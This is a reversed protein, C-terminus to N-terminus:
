KGSMRWLVAGVVGAVALGVVGSVIMKTRSDAGGGINIDSGHFEGFDLRQSVGSPGGGFSASVGGSGGAIAALPGM